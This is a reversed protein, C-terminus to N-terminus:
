PHKENKAARIGAGTAEKECMYAGSKTHGYAKNGSFHYIKTGLNAWVLTDTPCHAKAQSETTFQGAALGGAGQGPKATSPAPAPAAPTPVAKQQALAAAPLALLAILAVSRLVNFYNRRM